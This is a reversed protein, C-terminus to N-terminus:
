SSNQNQNLQDKFFKELGQMQKKERPTSLGQVDVITAESLPLGILLPRVAPYISSWLIWSEFLCKGFLNHIWCSPEINIFIWSDSSQLWRLTDEMRTRRISKQGQIPPFSSKDLDCCSLQINFHNCHKESLRSFFKSFIFELILGEIRNSNQLNWSTICRNDSMNPSQTWVM